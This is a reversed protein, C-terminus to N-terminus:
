ASTNVDVHQIFKHKAFKGTCRQEKEDKLAKISNTICCSPCGVQLLEAVVIGFLEPPVVKVQLHQLLRVHFLEPFISQNFLFPHIDIYKNTWLHCCWRVTYSLLFLMM